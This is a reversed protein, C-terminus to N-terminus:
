VTYLDLTVFAHCSSFLTLILFIVSPKRDRSVRMKVANFLDLPEIRLVQQSLGLSALTHAAGCSVDASLSLMPM